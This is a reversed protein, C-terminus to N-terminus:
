VTREEHKGAKWYAYAMTFQYLDTLLPTVMLNTPGDIGYNRKGEKTQGNVKAMFKPSEKEGYVPQGDASAAPAEARCIPSTRNKQGVLQPKTVFGQFKSFGDLSLSSGNFSNPKLLPNLPNFRHRFGQSPLPYFARIRPNSPLSLLWKTQLVAQM